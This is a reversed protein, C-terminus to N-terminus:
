INISEIRAPQWQPNANLFQEAEKFSSFRLFNSVSDTYNGNKSISGYPIGEENTCRIIAIGKDNHAPHTM